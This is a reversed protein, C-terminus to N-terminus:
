ETRFLDYIFTDKTKKQNKQYKSRKKWVFVSINRLLSQASIRVRVINKKLNRTRLVTERSGTMLYTKRLVLKMKQRALNQNKWFNLFSHRLKSNEPKAHSTSWLISLPIRLLQKVVVNKKM